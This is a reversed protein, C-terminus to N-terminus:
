PLLGALLAPAPLLLLGDLYREYDDRRHRNQRFAYGVLGAGVLSAGSLVATVIANPGAPLALPALSSAVFLGAVLGSASARSLTSSVTRLGTRVDDRRDRYDFAIALALFFAFRGALLGPASADLLTLPVATTFCTWVSALLFPKAVAFVRVGRLELGTYAYMLAGAAGLMAASMAVDPVTLSAVLGLCTVAAAGVALVSRRAHPLRARYLNYYTAVAIGLALPYAVLRAASAGAAVLVAGSQVAAGLGLWAHYDIAGDLLHRGVRASSGARGSTGSTM